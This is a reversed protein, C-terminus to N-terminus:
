KFKAVICLATITLIMACLFLTFSFSNTFLIVPLSFVCFLISFQLTYLAFSKWQILNLILNDVQILFGDIIFKAWTYFDMNRLRLLSHVLWLWLCCFLIAFLFPLSDLLIVICLKNYTFFSFYVFLCQGVTFYPAHPCRLMGTFVHGKSQNGKALLTVSWSRFSYQGYAVIIFLLKFFFDGNWLKTQM